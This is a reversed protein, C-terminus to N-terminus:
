FRAEQTGDRSGCPPLSFSFAIRQCSHATAPVGSYICHSFLLSFGLYVAEAM